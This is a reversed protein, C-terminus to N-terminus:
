CFKAILRRYMGEDIYKYLLLKKSIWCCKWYLWKSKGTPRTKLPRPIIATLRIMEETSLTQVTKGFYYRSAAEVGFIGPGFEIINLYIHYIRNKSLTQELERTIFFERIKRIFSKSTSLYLNKALQQSITSGGRVLEGKEWNKKFSEQLEDLDVGEHKYFSADETIRVSRRFLKPIQSFRVWKQRIKLKKGAEEAEKLRQQIIATTEPNHNILYEVDPMTAYIWIVFIMVLLIAIGIIRILWKLM